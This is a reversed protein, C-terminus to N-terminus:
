CPPRACAAAITAASSPPCGHQEAEEASLEAFAPGDHAGLQPSRISSRSSATARSPRSGAGWAGQSM